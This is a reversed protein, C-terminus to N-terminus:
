KTSNNDLNILSIYKSGKCYYRAFLLNWKKIPTLLLLLLCSYIHTHICPIYIHTYICIHTYKFAYILIHRYICAHLVYIFPKYIYIYVLWMIIIVVKVKGLCLVESLLMPCTTHRELWNRIASGKRWVVNFVKSCKFYLHEPEFHHHRPWGRSGSGRVGVSVGSAGSHLVNQFSPFFGRGPILVKFWTRDAGVLSHVRWRTRVPAPEKIRASYLALNTWYNEFEAVKPGSLEQSTNWSTKPFPHRPAHQTLLPLGLAEFALFLSIYQSKM